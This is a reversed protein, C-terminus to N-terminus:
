TPRSPGCGGGTGPGGRRSTGSMAFGSILKETRSSGCKPCEIEKANSPVIREFQTGCKECRYEFIPM